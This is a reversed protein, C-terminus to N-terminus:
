KSRGIYLLYGIGLCASGFVLPGIEKRAAAMLLAFGGICILSIPLGISYNGGSTQKPAFLTSRVPSGCKPCRWGGIKIACLIWIIIWAGCTVITLLLHLIHNTGKRVALVYEKCHPCYKQSYDVSM